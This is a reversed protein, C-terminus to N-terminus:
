KPEKGLKLIIEANAENVVYIFDGDKGNAYIMKAAMKAPTRRDWTTLVDGAKNRVTFSKAM